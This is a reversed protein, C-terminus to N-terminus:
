GANWTQGIMIADAVRCNLRVAGLKHNFIIYHHVCITLYIAAWQVVAQNLITSQQSSM